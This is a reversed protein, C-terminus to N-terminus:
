FLLYNYLDTRLVEKLNSKIINLKSTYVVNIPFKNDDNDFNISREPNIAKIDKIHQMGKLKFKSVIIEQFSIISKLDINIM